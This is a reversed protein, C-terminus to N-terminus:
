ALCGAPSRASRSRSPVFRWTRRSSKPEKRFTEEDIEVNEGEVILEPHDDASDEMSDEPHDCRWRQQAAPGYEWGYWDGKYYSESGDRLQLVFSGTVKSM